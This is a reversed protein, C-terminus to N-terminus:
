LSQGKIETAVTPTLRDAVYAGLQAVLDRHLCKASASKREGVACDDRAQGPLLRGGLLVVSRESWRRFAIPGLPPESAATVTMRRPAATLTCNM